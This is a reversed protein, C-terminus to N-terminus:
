YNQDIKDFSNHIYDINAMLLPYLDCFNLRNNWVWVTHIGQFFTLFHSESLLLNTNLESHLLAHRFNFILLVDTLSIPNSIKYIHLHIHTHMRTTTFLTHINCNINDNISLSCATVYHLHFVTKKIKLIFLLQSKIIM